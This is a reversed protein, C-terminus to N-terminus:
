RRQSFSPWTQATMQDKNKRLCRVPQDYSRLPVKETSWKRGLSVLRLLVPEPLPTPERPEDDSKAESEARAIEAQLPKSASSGSLSTAAQIPFLCKAWHRGTAHWFLRGSCEQILKKTFAWTCQDQSRSFLSWPSIHSHNVFAWLNVKWVISTCAYSVCAWM